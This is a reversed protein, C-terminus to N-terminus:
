RGPIPRPSASMSMAYAASPTAPTVWNSRIVRTRSARPSAPAARSSAVPARVRTDASRIRLAPFRRPSQSGPRARGSRASRSRTWGASWRTTPRWRRRRTWRGCRECGRRRDRQQGGDAARERPEGAQGSCDRDHPAANALAPQADGIGYRAQRNRLEAAQQAPAREAVGSGPAMGQCRGLRGSLVKPHGIAALRFEVRCGGEPSAGLRGSDTVNGSSGPWCPRAALRIVCSPLSSPQSAPTALNGCEDHEGGPTPPPRPQRGHGGPARPAKSGAARGLGAQRPRRRGTRRRRRRPHGAAASRGCTVTVGANLSGARGAHGPHDRGGHPRHVGGAGRAPHSVPSLLLCHLPDTDVLRPDPALAAPM